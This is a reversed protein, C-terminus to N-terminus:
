CLVLLAYYEINGVTSYQMAHDGGFNDTAIAVVSLAAIVSHDRQGCGVADVFMWSFLSFGFDLFPLVPM